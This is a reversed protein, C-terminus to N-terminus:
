VCLNPFELSQFMCLFDLQLRLEHMMIAIMLYVNRM